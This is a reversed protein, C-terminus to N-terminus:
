VAFPAQVGEPRRRALKHDLSFRGAGFLFILVLLFLVLVSFELNQRPEILAMKPLYVYVVAGLLIPIQALAAVRTLLGLALMVGGVLHIPIVVHAVAAQAFSASDLRQLLQTLDDQHSMFYVGKFFLGIGLYIRVLDRFGDEHDTLWQRCGDINKM